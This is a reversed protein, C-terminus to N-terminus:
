MVIYPWFARLVQGGVVCLFRSVLTAGASGGPRRVVCGAAAAFNMSFAVMRRRTADRGGDEPDGGDEPAGIRPRGTESVRRELVWARKM